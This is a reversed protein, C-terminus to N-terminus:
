GGRGSLIPSSRRSPPRDQGQPQDLILEDLQGLDQEWPGVVAPDALQADVAFVAVQGLVAEVLFERPPARFAGYRWSQDLRSVRETGPRRQLSTPM